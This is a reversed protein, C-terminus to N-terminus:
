KLVPKKRRQQKQEFPYITSHGRLRMELVRVTAKWDLITWGQCSVMVPESVVNGNKLFTNRAPDYKVGLKDLDRQQIDNM